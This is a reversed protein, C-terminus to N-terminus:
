GVMNQLSVSGIPAVAPAESQVRNIRNWELCCSMFIAPSFINCMEHFPSTPTWFIQAETYFRLLFLSCNINLGVTITLTKNVCGAKMCKHTECLPSRWGERDPWSWHPQHYYFMFYITQSSCLDNRDKEGTKCLTGVKKSVPDSNTTSGEAPGLLQGPNQGIKKRARTQESTTIYAHSPALLLKFSQRIMWFYM